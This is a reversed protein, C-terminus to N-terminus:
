TKEKVIIKGLHIRIVEITKGEEIWEGLSQVEFDQDNILGKGIPAIKSLAKGVDGVRVQKEDIVNMRGEVKSRLTLWNFLPTKLGYVIALVVVIATALLTLSGVLLGFQTFALVVGILMTLTGIIALVTIGPILFVELFLLLWGVLLIVILQWWSMLTASRCLYPPVSISHATEKPGVTKGGKPM